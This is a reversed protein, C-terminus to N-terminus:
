LHMVVNYVIVLCHQRKPNSPVTELISQQMRSSMSPLICFHIVACGFCAAISLACALSMVWFGLVSTYYLVISM